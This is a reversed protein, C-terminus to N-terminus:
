TSFVEFMQAKLQAEKPEWSLGEISSWKIRLRHYRRYIGGRYSSLQLANNPAPTGANTTTCLVVWNEALFDKVVAPDPHKKSSGASIAAVCERQPKRFKHASSGTHSKQSGHHAVKLIDFKAEGAGSQSCLCKIASHFGLADVDACLLADFHVNADRYLLALVLSLSNPDGEYGEITVRSLALATALRVRGPPPGVAVLSLNKDPFSAYIPNSNSDARFYAIQGSRYRDLVAEILKLYELATDARVTSNIETPTIGVDCFTGISRGGSTFHKLVDEMGTFHDDHPHTLCMVELRQIRNSEIFDFFAARVPGKPLNCDILVWDRGDQAPLSLLITDGRGCPLIYVFIEM